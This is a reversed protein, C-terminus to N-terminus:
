EEVKFQIEKSYPVGGQILGASVHHDAVTLDVARIKLEDGKFVQDGPGLIYVGDLMWGAVEQGPQLALAVTLEDGALRSLSSGDPTLTISQSGFNSFTISLEPKLVFQATVTVDGAPMAFTYPPGSIVEGNYKLTGAKIRYGEAPVPTVTVLAGQSGSNRSFTLTGNSINGDSQIQYYVAGTVRFSLERSHPAGNREVSVSVYHTGESLDVAAFERSTGTFGTIEIGDFLWSLVTQDAQPSVTVTLVDDYEKVLDNASNATLNINGGSGFNSFTISLEPKLVFQATVTVDGPPMLFEYEPATIPVNNKGGGSYRLSGTQIRYGEAPVPTVTITEGVGATAPSFQLSGNVLGSAASVTYPIKEFVATVTVPAAPMTFTFSPGSIEHATGDNWIVKQIRYGAQPYHTIVVTTGMVANAASASISGGPIGATIIVAYPKLDFQAKVIVTGAPMPFTYVDWGEDQGASTTIATETTGAVYMLSYEKLEYGPDPKVRVSVAANYRVGGVSAAWTGTTKVDLTGNVMGSATNVAYSADGFVATVTVDGDPMTFRYSGSSSPFIQNTVGGGTYTLSTLTKGTEPAVSITVQVGYHVNEYPDASIAGGGAPTRPDVTYSKPVFVATVTVDGPPMQFEYDQVPATIPENNQGGGSYRLSGAKLDWGPAPTVTITVLDNEEASWVDPTLSGHTLLPDITITYEYDAIFGFVARVTINDDPMSFSYPASVTSIPVVTSDTKIYELGTLVKGAPPSAKVYVTDDKGADLSSSFSFQDKGVSVHHGSMVTYLPDFEATFTVDGDPMTFVYSSDHSPGPIPEDTVGSDSCSYTLTGPKLRFGAAPSVTLAVPIGEITEAPYATVTGNMLVPPSVTHETKGPDNPTFRGNVTVEGAPMTFTFPPGETISKTVPSDGDYYTYSLSAPDLGYFDPFDPEGTVTVVTGATARQSSFTITGNNIGEQVKAQYYAPPVSGDGGAPNSCATIFAFVPLLWGACVFKGKM